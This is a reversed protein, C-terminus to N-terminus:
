QYGYNPKLDESLVIISVKTEISVAKCIDKKNDLKINFYSGKTTKKFNKMKSTM